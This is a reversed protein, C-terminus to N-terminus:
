CVKQTLPKIVPQKLMDTDLTNSDDKKYDTEKLECVNPNYAVNIIGGDVM